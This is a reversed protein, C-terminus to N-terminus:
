RKCSVIQQQLDSYFEKLKDLRLLATTELIAKFISQNKSDDPCLNNKLLLM